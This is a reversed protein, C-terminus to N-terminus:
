LMKTFNVTASNCVAKINQGNANMTITCNEWWSVSADSSNYIRIEGVWRKDGSKVINRYAQDGIKIKGANKANFGFGAYLEKFVANGSDFTVIFEGSDWDGNLMEYDQNDIECGVTLFVMVTVIALFGFFKFTNKM